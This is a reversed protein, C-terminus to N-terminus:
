GLWVVLGDSSSTTATTLLLLLLDAKGDASIGGGAFITTFHFASAATAGHEAAKNVAEEATATVALQVLLLM